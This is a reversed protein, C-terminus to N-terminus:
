QTFQSLAQRYAADHTFGVVLQRSGDSHFVVMTPVSQTAVAHILSGASDLHLRHHLALRNQYADADARTDNSVFVARLGRADAISDLLVAARSCHACRSSVYMLVFPPRRDEPAVTRPWPLDAAAPVRAGAYRPTALTAALGALVASGLVLLAARAFRPANPM